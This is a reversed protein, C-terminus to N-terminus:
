SGRAPAVISIPTSAPADPRSRARESTPAAASETSWPAPSVFRQACIRRYASGERDGSRGRRVAGLVGREEHRLQVHLDEGAEDEEAVPFGEVADDTRTMM